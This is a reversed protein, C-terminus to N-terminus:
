KNIPIYGVDGAFSMKVGDIHLTFANVQKIKECEIKAVKLNKDGVTIYIMYKKM